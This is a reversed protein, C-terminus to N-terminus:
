EGVYNLFFRGGKEDLSITGSEWSVKFLKTQTPGKVKWKGPPLDTILVKYWNGTEGKEFSIDGNGTELDLSQAVIRNAIEVVVYNGKTAFTKSVKLPKPSPYADMVQMVNLFLDNASTRQPSVEIRWIAGDSSNSESIVHQPFNIGDVTYENGIGGVKRISLNDSVPLLTTNVMLGNYGKETRKIISTIGDIEPEEVCHLLWSKKFNKNSSIVRDLVIMAAPIPDNKLNLFVFSRQFNKIKDSYAEAMEGKIYTYEPKTSDPGFEHALVTGTKYDEALFEQMNKPEAAGNPFQQGGDNAIPRQHWTFKEEPDYVLMTNHAISRQYYNKFHDCGYGGEKGQYIGSNVALPGKYYIQFSGADLHQHNAFNYAGIKMEAVATNSDINNAWGTRAVMAGLPEKFYRSLPLISFDSKATINPDILLFDFLGDKGFQKRDIAESMLYSDKFYSGVLGSGTISWPKGFGTFLETFDDGDRFFQGDPRRSYIWRYPIKSQDEGLIKPYGMRDFIMTIWLDWQFRYPGYSSGQHHYGASYFFKRAPIFEAFIRGVALNYIEPKENWTAVGCALMDRALQAESGHGVISGQVLEPWVIEMQKGLNEMNNILKRKQPLDILDYCWDYVIATNLIVRGIDRYVDAKNQDIILTKNYNLVAEVAERGAQQNKLFAYLFAKAEIANIVRIDMNHKTGHQELIGDTQFEANQQILDWSEKLLPNATKERLVALDGKRFFLRPHENPPVPVNLGKGERETLPPYIFKVVNISDTEFKYHDVYRIANEQGFLVAPLLSLGMIISLWSFKLIRNLFYITNPTIEM